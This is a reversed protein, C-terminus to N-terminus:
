DRWLYPYLIFSLSIVIGTIAILFQFDGSAIYWGLDDSAHKTLRAAAGLQPLIIPLSLIAMLVGKQRTKAAIASILTMSGAFSLSTLILTTLFLYFDQLPNGNFFLFFILSFVSLITMQLWNFLLKGFLFVNPRMLSYALLMQGSSESSFSRAIAQIAVFLNVIWFCANWVQAQMKGRFIIALIFATAFCYFLLGFLQSQQKLELTWERNIAAKLEQFFGTM